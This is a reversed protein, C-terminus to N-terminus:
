PNRSLPQKDKVFSWDRPNTSLLGQQRQMQRCPLTCLVFLPQIRVPMSERDTLLTLLKHLSCFSCREMRSPFLALIQSALKTSSSGRLGVIWPVILDFSAIRSYWGFSQFRLKRDFVVFFRHLQFSFIGKRKQLTPPVTIPHLSPRKTRYMPSCTTWRSWSSRYSRSPIGQRPQRPLSDTLNILQINELLIKKQHQMQQSSVRGNSLNTWAEM